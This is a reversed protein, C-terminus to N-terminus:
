CPHPVPGCKLREETQKRQHEVTQVESRMLDHAANSECLERKVTVLTERLQCNDHEVSRLNNQQETKERLLEQVAEQSKKNQQQLREVHASQREELVKSRDTLMSKETQARVLDGKMVTAEHELRAKVQECTALQGELAQSKRQLSVLAARFADSPGSTPRATFSMSRYALAITDGGDLHAPM